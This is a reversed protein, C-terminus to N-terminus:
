GFEIQGLKFVMIKKEDPGYFKPETQFSKGSFFEPLGQGMSGGNIYCNSNQLTRIM